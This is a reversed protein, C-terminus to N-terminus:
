RSQSANEMGKELANYFDPIGYGFEIDPSEYQSSSERLLKMIEKNTLFPLAQWLCVGLGAVTPTSFSTGNAYIVKGKSDIICCGTGLAVLDPKVMCDTEIGISSFSSRVLGETVAGITLVDRVDAPVTLTGWTRDGENGASCFLLLGKDAAMQATKSIMTTKGDLVDWNYGLETVDFSFYGLSSSIVDVGVSDAFEVAATWYDEEIPYESHVDESKLLWYSANPATGVFTGPLNAAMCSLVRTGHADEKFVSKKPNLFNYTGLLKLSKFAKIKDVKAFGADIVAVVMGDGKYGREHLEMGNLMAIQKGAYGYPAMCEGDYSPMATEEEARGGLSLSHSGKWVWKTSDVFGLAEIKHIISSDASEVVITANWKSHTIVKLGMAKLSDFYFTSIPFDQETILINQKTRREIAKASLFAEPHDISYGNAGKNNLYVRFKFTDEAKGLFVNLAFILMLFFAIGGIRSM